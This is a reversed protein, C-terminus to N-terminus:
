AAIENQNAQRRQVPELSAAKCGSIGAVNFSRHEKGDRGTFTRFPGYLSITEGVILRSNIANLTKGSVTAITSVTHGKANKRRIRLTTYPTKKENNYTGRSLGTIEGKITYYQERTNGTTAANDNIPLDTNDLVNDTNNM